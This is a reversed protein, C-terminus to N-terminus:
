ILDKSSKKKTEPEEKVEETTETPEVKEKALTNKARMIAADKKEDQTKYEREIWAIKLESGTTPLTDFLNLVSVKAFFPIKPMNGIKEKSAIALVYIPNKPIELNNTGKNIKNMINEYEVIFAKRSVIIQQTLHSIGSSSAGDKVAILANKKKTWIDGLEFKSKGDLYVLSRDLNVFDTKENQKEELLENYKKEDINKKWKAFKHDFIANEELAKYDSSVMDAFDTSFTRWKSESFIFVNKDETIQYTICDMISKEDLTDGNSDISQICLNPLTEKEELKDVINEITEKDLTTIQENEDEFIDKDDISLKFWEHGEEELNPWSVICELSRFDKKMLKKLVNTKEEADKKDLKKINNYKSLDESIKWVKLNNKDDKVDKHKNAFCKYIEVAKKEISGITDISLITNFSNSLKLTRTRTRKGEGPIVIKISKIEDFHKNLSFERVSSSSTGKNLLKIDSNRTNKSIIEKITIDPEINLGAKIGFGDVLYKKNYMGRTDGLSVIIKRDKKRDKHKVVVIMSYKTIKNDKKVKEGLVDIITQNPMITKKTIKYYVEINGEKQEKLEKCGKGSFLEKLTKDEELLDIKINSM